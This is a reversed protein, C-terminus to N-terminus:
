ARSRSLVLAYGSGSTPMIPTRKRPTDSISNVSGDFALKRPHTPIMVGAITVLTLLPEIVGVQDFDRRNMTVEQNTRPQKSVRSHPLSTLDPSSGDVVDDLARESLVSTSM